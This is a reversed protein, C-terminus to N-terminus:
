AVKDTQGDSIDGGWVGSMATTDGTGKVVGGEISSCIVINTFGKVNV